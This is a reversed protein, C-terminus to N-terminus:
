HFASYIFGRKADASLKEEEIIGTHNRESEIEGKM